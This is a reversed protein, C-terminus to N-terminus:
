LAAYGRQRQRHRAFEGTKSDAYQRDRRAKEFRRQKGLQRLLRLARESPRDGIGCAGFEGASNACRTTAM